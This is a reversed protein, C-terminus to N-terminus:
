RPSREVNGHRSVADTSDQSSPENAVVVVEPVIVSVGGAPVNKQYRTVALLPDPSPVTPVAVGPGLCCFTVCAHRRVHASEPPLQETSPSQQLEFQMAPVQWAAHQWGVAANQRWFESQQLLAHLPPCHRPGHPAAVSQGPTSLAQRTRVQV